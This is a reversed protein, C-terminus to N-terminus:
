CNINSSIKLDVGTLEIADLFDNFINKSETLHSGWYPREIQTHSVITEGQTVFRLSDNIANIFDDYLPFLVTRFNENYRESSKLEPKTLNVIAFRASVEGFVADNATDKNVEYDQILVILPYKKYSYIGDKKSTLTNAVELLHGHGYYPALAKWTKGTFDLGTSANINFSDVTVSNVIYDVGDINVVESNKLTNPTTILYNGSTEVSSAITNTQRMTDVVESIIDVLIYNKSEM